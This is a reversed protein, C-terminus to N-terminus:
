EVWMRQPVNVIINDFAEENAGTLDKYLRNIEDNKQQLLAGRKDLEEVIATLCDHAAKVDFFLVLTTMINRFCRVMDHKTLKEIRRVAEDAAYEQEWNLMGFYDQEISDFGLVKQSYGLLAVTMDDWNARVDSDHLAEWLNYAGVSLDDFLEKYEQYYGVEDRDYGYMDGNEIIEDLWDTIDDYNLVQLMSKKWLPKKSCKM